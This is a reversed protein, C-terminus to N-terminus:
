ISEEIQILGAIDKPRPELTSASATQVAVARTELFAHAGRSGSRREQQKWRWLRADLAVRSLLITLVDKELSVIVVQVQAWNRTKPNM